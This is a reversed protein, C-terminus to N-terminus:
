STTLGRYIQNNSHTRMNRSKLQLSVFGRRTLTDSADDCSYCTSIQVNVGSEQLKETLRRITRKARDRLVRPPGSAHSTDGERMAGQSQRLGQTEQPM